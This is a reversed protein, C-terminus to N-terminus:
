VITTDPIEDAPEQKFKKKRPSGEDDSEKTAKTSTADYDSDEDSHSTVNPMGQKNKPKGENCLECHYHSPDINPFKTRKCVFYKEENGDYHKRICSEIM